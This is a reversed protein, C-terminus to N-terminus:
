HKGRGHQARFSCVTLQLCRYLFMCTWSEVHQRRKQDFHHNAGPTSKPGFPHNISSTPSGSQCLVRPILGVESCNPSHNVSPRCIRHVYFRVQSWTVSKLMFFGSGTPVFAQRIKLQLFGKICMGWIEILKFLLCPFAKLICVGQVVQYAKRISINIYYAPLKLIVQAIKILCVLNRRMM